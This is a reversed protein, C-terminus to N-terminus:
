DVIGAAAYLKTRYAKEPARGGNRRVGLSSARGRWPAKSTQMGIRPTKPSQAAKRHRDGKLKTRADCLTACTNKGSNRQSLTSLKRPTNALVSINKGPARKITASKAMHADAFNLTSSRRPKWQIILCHPIRPISVLMAFKAATIETVYCM